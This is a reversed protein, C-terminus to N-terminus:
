ENGSLLLSRHLEEINPTNNSSRNKQLHAM